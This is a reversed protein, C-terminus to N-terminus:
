VAGLVSEGPKSCLTGSTKPLAAVSVPLPYIKVVATFGHLLPFPTEM